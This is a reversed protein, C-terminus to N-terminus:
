KIQTAPVRKCNVTAYRPKTYEGVRLLFYFAVMILCGCHRLLPDKSIAGTQYATKVVIVPVALQPTTPPDTRRFGEVMREIM